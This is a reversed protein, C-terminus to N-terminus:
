SDRSNFCNRKWHVAEDFTADLQHMLANCEYLEGFLVLKVSQNYSPLPPCLPTYVSTLVPHTNVPSDRRGDQHSVSLHDHSEPATTQSPGSTTSMTSSDTSFSPATSLTSSPVNLELSPRNCCKNNKGPLCDTCARKAKVCSCNRCLGNGNCRCCQVM